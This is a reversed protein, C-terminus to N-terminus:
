EIYPFFYGVGRATLIWTPMSPDDELKARLRSIHVDVIRNDIFREPTYGWINNLLYARSLYNGANELLLHLISFEINTLHVIKGNKIVQKKEKKVVLPGIRRLNSKLSSYNSPKIYGLLARIRLELERPSFPKIVYDNIGFDLNNKPHPISNIETLLILLINPDTQIKAYFGYQDFNIFINDLIVIQPKFRKLLVLADKINSAFFVRYGLLTLRTALIQRILIDSDTILIKVNYLKV